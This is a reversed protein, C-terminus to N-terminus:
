GNWDNYVVGDQCLVRFPFQYLATDVLTVITRASDTSAKRPLLPVHLPIEFWFVSGGAVTTIMMLVFALLFLEFLM